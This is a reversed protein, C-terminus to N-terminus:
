ARCWTIHSTCIPHRVHLFPKVSPNQVGVPASVKFLGVVLEDRGNIPGHKNLGDYVRFNIGTTVPDSENRKHSVLLSYSRSHLEVYSPILSFMGIPVYPTETQQSTAEHLM